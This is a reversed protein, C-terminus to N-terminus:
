HRDRPFLVRYVVKSRAYLHISEDFNKEFERARTSVMRISWRQLSASVDALM